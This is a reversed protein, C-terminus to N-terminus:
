KTADSAEEEKIEKTILQITDNKSIVDIIALNSATDIESVWVPSSSHMIFDKYFSDVETAAIFSKNFCSECVEIFKAVSIPTDTPTFALENPKSYYSHPIGPSLEAHGSIVVPLSSREKRLAKTLSGLTMQYDSAKKPFLKNLLERKM